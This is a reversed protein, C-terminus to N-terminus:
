KVCETIDATYKKMQKQFDRISKQVLTSLTSIREEILIHTAHIIDPEGHLPITEYTPDKVKCFKVWSRETIPRYAQCAVALLIVPLLKINM